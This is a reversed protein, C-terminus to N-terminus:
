IECQMHRNCTRKSATVATNSAALSFRSQTGTDSNSSTVFRRSSRLTHQQADIPIAFCSHITSQHATLQNYGCTRLAASDPSASSYLCTNFLHTLIFQLSKIIYTIQNSTIPLTLSSPPSITPLLSKALTMSNGLATMRVYWMSSVSVLHTTYQHTHDHIHSYNSRCDYM